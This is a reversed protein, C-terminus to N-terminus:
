RSRQLILIALVVSLVVTIVGFGPTSLDSVSDSNDADESRNESSTGRDSGDDATSGDALSDTDSGGGDSDSDEPATEVEEAVTVRHVVLGRVTVTYEGTEEFTETVTIQGTGDPNMETEIQETQEGVGAEISFPLSDIHDEKWRVNVDFEAETGVEVTEPAEVSEILISCYDRLEPGCRAVVPQDLRSKDQVVLTHTTETSGDLVDREDSIVARLEYEGPDEPTTIDFGESVSSSSITTVKQGVLEGDLYLKMEVPLSLGYPDTIAAPVHVTTSTGTSVPTEINTGGKLSSEVSIGGYQPSLDATVKEVIYVVDEQSQVGGMQIQYRHNGAELGDPLGHSLTVPRTEGSAVTVRTSDVVEGRFLLEVTESGGVGGDNGVAVDVTLNQGPVAAIDGWSDSGSYDFTGTGEEVSQISYKPAVAPLLTQAAELREGDVTVYLTVTKDVPDEITRTVTPGTADIEGDSDFDWEYSEVEGNYWTRGIAEIADPTRADFTVESGREVLFPDYTFGPSSAGGDQMRAKQEDLQAYFDEIITSYEEDVVSELERPHNNTYLVDYGERGYEHLVYETFLALEDYEDGDANEDTFYIADRDFSARKAIKEPPTTIHQATGEVVVEPTIAGPALSFADDQFRHTLEHFFVTRDASTLVIRSGVGKYCGARQVGDCEVTNSAVVEVAVRGEVPAVGFRQFLLKYYEDAYSAIDEAEARENEEYTIEFYDTRIVDSQATTTSGALSGSDTM